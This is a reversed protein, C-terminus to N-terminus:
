KSLEELFTKLNSVVDEEDVNFEKIEIDKLESKIANASDKSFQPQVFIVSVNNEKATEIIEQIEKASPEKGDTEIAIEKVNSGNLFYSLSPHYIIFSKNGLDMLKQSSEKEFEDIKAIFKEYNKEFTEKDNPYIEILKDLVNKAVFKTISMSFWIHPDNGSNGHDHHHKDEEHDHDHEHNKDDSNKVIITDNNHEDKLFLNEDLGELVNFAKEKSSKELEEEFQFLEYFFLIKSEELKKIDKVDPEFSEHSVNTKVISEVDYKEGAIESVLWKLPAVSTVIIEKDNTTNKCSILTFLVVCIFLIKKLMKKM